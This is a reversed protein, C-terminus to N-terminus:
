PTQLRPRGPSLHGLGLVRIGMRCPYRRVSHRSIISEALHASCKLEPVTEAVYVKWKVWKTICIKTGPQLRCACRKQDVPSTLVAHWSPSRRLHPLRPGSPPERRRSYK